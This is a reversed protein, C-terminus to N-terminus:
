QSLVKRKREKMLEIKVGKFPLGQDKLLMM